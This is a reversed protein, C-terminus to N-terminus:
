CSLPPCILLVMSAGVLLVILLGFLSIFLLVIPVFSLVDILVVVLM